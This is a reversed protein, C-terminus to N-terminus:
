AFVAKEIENCARDGGRCFDGDSKKIDASIRSMSSQILGAYMQTQEKTSAIRNAASLIKCRLTEKRVKPTTEYKGLLESLKQSLDSM